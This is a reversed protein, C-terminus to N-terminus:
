RGRKHNDYVDIYATTKFKYQHAFMSEIREAAEAPSTGFHKLIFNISKASKKDANFVKVMKLYEWLITLRVSRLMLEIKAQKKIEISLNYKGIHIM